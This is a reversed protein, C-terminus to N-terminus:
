GLYLAHPGLNLHFGELQQVRARGGVEASRELVSVRRGARGLYVAATLGALGGGIVVVEAPGSRAPVSNRQLTNM